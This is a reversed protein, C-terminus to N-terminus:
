GILPRGEPLRYFNQRERLALASVLTVPGIRGVFMLFILLVQGLASLGPTVGASLGVTGFASVVEFMALSLTLEELTMLVLTAGLVLGAAVLGVTLAQRQARAEIRRDAIEVDRTGRAEAVIVFFLLFFTSVKIGGATSASGGGIFMLITTVFLTPERMQAYDLSNFGATRPQVSGTFGALLRAPTDLAGLTAPNSWELATFAVFGGALLVMTGLVTIKVHLSWIRPNLRKRLEFMVPFGIGGLIVAANIPLCIWPDGVFSVLSDSYLAFGANNFASVSHFVGLYAARGWSEDYGFFFRLGLLVAITFEITLTVKLIGFLLERVDGLRLTNSEGATNLRSRLGLRRAILLALLSALTMIGFGGIQIMVLIAVEGFGSWYVPVDVTSLGTVCLASTATFLAEMFDAGGRGSTAVPLMLVATGILVGIAFLAAIVQAPHRLGRRPGTLSIGSV